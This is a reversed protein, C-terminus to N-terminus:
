GDQPRRHPLLPPNLREVPFETQGNVEVELLLCAQDLVREIIDDDVHEVEGSLVFKLVIQDGAVRVQQWRDGAFVDVADFVRPEVLLNTQEVRSVVCATGAKPTQVGRTPRSLLNRRHELASSHSQRM